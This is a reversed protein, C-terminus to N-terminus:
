FEYTFDGTVRGGLSEIFPRCGGPGGCIINSTAGRTPTLGLDGAGAIATKEAHFGPMPATPTLGLRRAEAFQVASLDSAGGAVLTPGESTELVTVTRRVNLPFSEVGAIQEALARTAAPGRAAGAAAASEEAAALGRGAGFVTAAALFLTKTGAAGAARYDEGGIARATDATGRGIHYLPNVANVAGLLGDEEYGTWIADALEYGSYAGFTLANMVLMRGIGAGVDLTGEAVGLLTQGVVAGASAAGAHEPATVTPQPAYGSSTGTTGVDVPATIAGVEAGATTAEADSRGEHEPLPLVLELEIPPLGLEDSTFEAGAPLPSRAGDEPLTGQFGSPDVYSLPSNRVYSYPNCSQGSMPAQVLPDTTLFRGVRPDYMRGKMNVLGLEDDGEHGTFGRTTTSEFSAPAPRGWVPNRRQGFPDYSRREVVAGDEDTLADVSGLHDVHVYRTGPEAGGRTVTAVVREPSHVHYRHEVRGTAADTVREYLDGFYLTEKEPTTKRIRQQDGDYDLTVTSAGETIREPLDFPTYRVTVGGPRAIQNGVADYDFSSTATGAGTVAHPHLPDDYRLEGVDSKFTLDGNPAYDYGLDCPASASETASFYACTLRELADYRNHVQHSWRAANERPVDTHLLAQAPSRCQM